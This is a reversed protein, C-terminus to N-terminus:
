LKFYTGKLSESCLSIAKFADTYFEVMVNEFNMSVQSLLIGKYLQKVVESFPRQYIKTSLATHIDEIFEVAREWRKFTDYLEYTSVKVRELSTINKDWDSSFYSWFRPVVHNTLREKVIDIFWADILAVDCYENLVEM